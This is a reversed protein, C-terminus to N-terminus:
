RTVIEGSNGASERFKQVGCDEESMGDPMPVTDAAWEVGTPSGARAEDMVM